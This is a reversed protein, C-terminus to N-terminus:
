LWDEVASIFKYSLISNRILRNVLIGVGYQHIDNANPMGSWLMLHGKSTVIEGCENWRVESLGMFMLGYMELIRSAQALKGAQYLTQVNWTGFRFRKVNGPTTM